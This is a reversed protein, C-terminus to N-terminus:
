IGHFHHPCWASSATRSRLAPVADDEDEDVAVTLM